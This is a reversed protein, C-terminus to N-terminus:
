IKEAFFIEKAEPNKLDLTISRKGRNIHLHMLSDGEVIPWTMQRVYDGQPPEVKIVEAGLDILHSTIAAPGLLSCEIVRVGKLLGSNNGV